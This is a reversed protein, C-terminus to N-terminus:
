PLSCTLHAYFFFFCFAKLMKTNKTQAINFISIEQYLEFYDNQKNFIYM